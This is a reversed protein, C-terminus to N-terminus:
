RDLGGVQADESGERAGFVILRLGEEGRGGSGGTRAEDRPLLAVLLCGALPLLLLSDLAARLGRADALAGVAMAALGGPGISFGINIGSALAPRRPLYDQSLILTTTNTSILAFGAAALGMLGLPGGLWFAAALAPLTAAISMALLRRSGFRDALYGVTVTGVAGSALYVFLARGAAAQDLGKARYVFPLLTVLGFALASRVSALAAMLIEAAWRDEGAHGDGPLTHRRSVTQPSGWLFPMAWALLGAATLSPLAPLAGAWRGFRAVATGVLLPGLAFGVNGGVSFVATGSGRQEGAAHMAARAGAPHFMAVGLGSLAAAALVAAYSGAQAVAALGVGAMLIGAPLFWRGWPRDAMAGLLPQVFSSTANFALVVSGAQAYSLHFADRVGPLLVPLAGQNLDTVAHGLSLLILSLRRKSGPM